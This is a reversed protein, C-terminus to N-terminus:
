PVRLNTVANVAAQWWDRDQALDIWDMGKWGLEHLVMKINDEWRRRSRGLPRKAELKRVIVRHVEGRGGYTGCAGGIENKIQDVLLIQHTCIMFSRM